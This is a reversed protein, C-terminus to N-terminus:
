NTTNRLAYILWLLVIVIPVIVCLLGVYYSCYKAILGILMVNFMRMLTCISISFSIASGRIKKSSYYEFHKEVSVEILTFPIIIIMASVIFLVKNYIIASILLLVIQLFSIYLCKKVTLCQKCLFIPIFTGIAMCAMFASTYNAIQRGTCGMDVLVMDGIVLCLPYTFFNILGYFFLLYVFEKSNKINNYLQRFIQRISENKFEQLKSNKTNPVFFIISCLAVVKLCITIYILIQYDHHKLIISALFAMISFAIDWCFYYVSAVKAYLHLKNQSSLYNYMYSEYKGYISGKSIGLLVYFILLNFFTPNLLFVISILDIIRGLLFSLKAGFRDFIIGTIYMFMFWVASEATQMTSLQLPDIGKSRIYPTLVAYILSTNFIAYLVNGILFKRTSFMFSQWFFM